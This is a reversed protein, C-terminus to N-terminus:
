NMFQSGLSFDLFWRLGNTSSLHKFSFPAFSAEPAFYCRRNATCSKWAVQTIFKTLSWLEFFGLDGKLVLQMWGGSVAFLNLAVHSYLLISYPRWAPFHGSATPDAQIWWQHLNLDLDIKCRKFDIEIQRTCLRLLRNTEGSSIASILSFTSTIRQLNWNGKHPLIYPAPTSSIADPFSSFFFTALYLPLLLPASGRPSFSPEHTFYILM